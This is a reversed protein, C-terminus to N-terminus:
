YTKEQTENQSMSIQVLEKNSGTRASRVKIRALRQPM